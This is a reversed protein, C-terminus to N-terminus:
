FKDFVESEVDNGGDDVDPRKDHIAPTDEGILEETTIDFCFELQKDLEEDSLDPVDKVGENIANRYDGIREKIAIDLAEMRLKNEDVDYDSPELPIVTSRAIVKGKDNMIWFVMSQGVRHAIGLWRGMHKKENPFSQPTDWYFCYDYFQFEVYESIDPTSGYVMEYGTRGKNRYMGPVTLSHLDSYHEVAYCWLRM